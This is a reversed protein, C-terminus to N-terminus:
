PGISTVQNMLDMFFRIYQYAVVAGVLLMLVMPLVVALRKVSENYEITLFESIKRLAEGSTGSVEATVLMQIAAPNLIHTRPLAASLQAGERVIPVIKVVRAALAQNGCARGAVELSTGMPLGGEILEGLARSFKVAAGRRVMSGILPLVLVIEDVTVRLPGALAVFRGLLMTGFVGAYLLGLLPVVTWLYPSLGQVVLKHLPPLLVAAHIVLVPYIMMTVLASHMTYAQEQYAALDRLRNDLMGGMEGARIMSVAFENFLEPYMEFARSMPVGEDVVQALERLVAGFQGPTQQGLVMLARGATTGADIMSALQRFFFAQKQLSLGFIAGMLSHHRGRPRPRQPSSEMM